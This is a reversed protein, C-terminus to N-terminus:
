EFYSIFFNNKSNPMKYLQEVLINDKLSEVTEEYRHIIIVKKNQLQDITIPMLMEFHNGPHAGTSLYRMKDQKSPLHYLFKAINMRDDFVIYDSLLSDDLFKIENSASKMGQLKNFPSINPPNIILYSVLFLIIVGLLTNIYLLKKYKQYMMSSAIMAIGIFAVSSWNANARSIFSQITILIIIPLSYSIEFAYSQYFNKFKMFGKLYLFFIIPTAIFFQSMIFNFLQEFNFLTASWNFNDGTHIFTVWNSSYVWYIHPSIFLSVFISIISINKIIKNKNESFIILFISCVFFYIMAYKAYFGLAVFISTLVIHKISNDDLSLKFFYLSLSWFLLLFPDTSVINSSLSVAFFLLYSISLWISEEKNRNFARSLNFLVISTLTHALLSPFKLIFVSSGFFSSFLAIVWAVLPPKSYYGWDFYSSWYWYQAEDGQPELPSLALSIVRIVLISFIFLLLYNNKKLSYSKILM